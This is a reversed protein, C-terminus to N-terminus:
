LPQKMPENAVNHDQIDPTRIGESVGTFACTLLRPRVVAPAKSNRPGNAQGVIGRRGTNGQSASAFIILHSTTSSDRSSAM